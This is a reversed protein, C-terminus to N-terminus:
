FAYAPGHFSYFSYAPVKLGVWKSLSLVRNAGVSVPKSNQILGGALRTLM